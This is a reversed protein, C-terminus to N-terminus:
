VIRKAIVVFRVNEMQGFCTSLTLFTDGFEATVKTDYLAIKKINEYFYLFEEETDAQYFQYYRFGNEEKSIQTQFVSIIQYVREEYLTDFNIYAHEKFFIEEKYQELNGFMSNDKMNHGYIIFNTAPTNVDAIAKVYLCGYKDKKKYFNHSLYYADEECQMVPYNINTGEIFIWGVLDNNKQYLTKYKKLISLEGQKIKKNEKIFKKNNWNAINNEQSISNDYDLFNRLEEQQREHSVSLYYAQGIRILCVVFIILLIIRILKVFQIKKQNGM